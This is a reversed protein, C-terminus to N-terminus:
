NFPLSFSFVYFCQLYNLTANEDHAFCEIPVCKMLKWAAAYPKAACVVRILINEPFPWFFSSNRQLYQLKGETIPIIWGLEQYQVYAM